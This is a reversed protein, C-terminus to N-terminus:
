TSLSRLLFLLRPYKGFKFSMFEDVELFATLHIFNSLFYGVSGWSVIPPFYPHAGLLYTMLAGNLPSNVTVIGTVWNENTDYGLFRKEALYTQLARATVGGIPPTLYSFFSPCVMAIVLLISLIINVGNHINVMKIILVMLAIVMFSVISTVM